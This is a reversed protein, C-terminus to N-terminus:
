MWLSRTRTRQRLKIASFAERDLAHDARGPPGYRRGAGPAGRGASKFTGARRKPPRSEGNLPYRRDVALLGAASDVLGSRRDAGPRDPPRRELGRRPGDVGPTTSWGGFGVISRDTVTFTGDGKSFAVPVSTWGAGGTLAVDMKGDGNFDGAVVRSISAWTPFDALPANTVNFTGDGNSFAVPLSAWAPNGTLAIDTRGDGNFDGVLVQANPAAAWTPFNALPANTVNFSGDGNSFAVPVSAWSSPGTLAIDARGDGNFDGVLPKANPTAAMIAFYTTTTTVNFTGDGNSFAVPLVPWGTPGTVALDSKGDGNWDGVLFEAGPNSAWIAFSTPLNTVNFTGDGNSFAM